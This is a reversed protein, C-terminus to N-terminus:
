TDFLKWHGESVVEVDGDVVKIATEKKGIDGEVVILNASPKLDKSKNINLSNGVVNYGREM